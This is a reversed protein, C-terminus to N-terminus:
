RGAEECAERAAVCARDLWAEDPEDAWPWPRRGEVEEMLRAAMGAVEERDAMGLRVNMLTDRQKDRICVAPLEGRSMRAGEYLLRLLHMGAKGSWRDSREELLRLQARAYGLYAEVTRKSLAAVVGERIPKLAPHVWAAPDLADEVITPNGKLLLRCWHGLEHARWDPRYGDLTDKPPRIGLHESAPAAWVVSWDVDSEPLALGFSHSGAMRVLLVTARRRDALLREVIERPMNQPNAPALGVDAMGM